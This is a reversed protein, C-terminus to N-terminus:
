CRSLSRVQSDFHALLLKMCEIHGDRAAAAFPNIKTRGIACPDAGARLLLSCCRQHGEM